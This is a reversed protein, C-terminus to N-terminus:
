AVLDHVVGIFAFFALPSMVWCAQQWSQLSDWWGGLGPRRPKLRTQTKVRIVGPPVYVIEFPKAKPDQKAGCAMCYLADWPLIEGCTCLRM